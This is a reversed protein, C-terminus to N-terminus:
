GRRKKKPTPTAVYALVQERQKQSLKLRFLPHNKKAAM